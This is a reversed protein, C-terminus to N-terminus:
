RLIGEEQLEAALALMIGLSGGKRIKEKQNGSLSFAIQEDGWKVHGNEWDIELTIPKKQFLRDIEAQPLTVCLLGNAFMNNEFIRAFSPAIVCCIGAQELAYVAQERSSGSGFNEGAVIIQSQYLLNREESSALVSELCHNGFEKKKSLSLYKAPIILDTNVNGQPLYFVAGSFNRAQGSKITEALKGYDPREFAVEKWDTLKVAEGKYFLDRCDELAQRCMEITPESVVGNVATFAAVAPSALHVMGGEGMRGAFNRNTTSLCIEEPALVGCSMGLCAGCSPSCVACGAVLFIEILGEKIAREYIHQTAPIVICRTECDVRGGLQRIISSAIRLDEIRGNTCSGIFVQDVKKGAIESVPVVDGVSYNITAVPVMDSVDIEIVQDYEANPDSNFRQCDALTLVPYHDKGYKKTIAPRLYNITTKDVNMMGSTAGAEVAMNTITMRGEMSMEDIVNGGFELICNTAGKVGIKKILTLILDKAFVNAPLKGVFNVRIVKQPPLVVTGTILASELDTTGVGFTLACFVSETCGHSDGIVGTEGPFIAGIQPILVHCVGKGVDFFEIGRMKSWERMIKGQNATDTDKAPSVHDIMMKIRNPNFVFDLGRARMDDIALPTTIEHGWVKDLRLVMSGDPLTKLLHKEIIKQFVTKGKREENIKM